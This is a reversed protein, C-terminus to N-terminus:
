SDGSSEASSRPLTFCFTSGLRPGESDAWIRGNHAAIIQRCIYLGLGSGELHRMGKARYFREFIRPADGPALGIGEDRVCVTAQGEDAKIVIEVTGGDPSYKVANTVLNRLVQEVRREDWIGELREPATLILRHRDTTTQVGELVTRALEVLDTPGPQLELRGAEIRSFDLLLDILATLRDCQHELGAFGGSLRDLDISGTAVQRRLLQIQGKIVTVPNKLDHSAISLVEEKLREVDRRGTVDRFVILGGVLTGDPDRLPACSFSLVQRGQGHVTVEVDHLAEGRRLADIVPELAEAVVRAGLPWQGWQERDLPQGLVVSTEDACLLKRATRNLRVIRGGADIILLADTMSELVAELESVRRQLQVDLRQTVRLNQIAIAVMSGVTQLLLLDDEDYAEPQYSQTSLVGIVQEGALLPVTVASEPLGRQNTAYQIQVHPGEASWNRILRPVRTQIVQSTFGSGLPFSGNPLEVTSDVQFVVSVTQSAEDYLGLIFGTTDIIRNIGRYVIRCLANLDVARGLSQGISNLVELRERLRETQIKSDVQM